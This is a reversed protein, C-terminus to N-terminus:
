SNERLVILKITAPLHDPKEEAMLASCNKSYENFITRFKYNTTSLLNVSNHSFYLDAEMTDRHSAFFAAALVNLIANTKSGTRNQPVIEFNHTQSGLPVSLFTATFTITSM